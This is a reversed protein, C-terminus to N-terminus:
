LPVVDSAIKESGSALLEQTGRGMLQLRGQGHDLGVYLDERPGLLSARDFLQFSAQSRARYHHFTQRVAVVDVAVVPTERPEPLSHSGFTLAM